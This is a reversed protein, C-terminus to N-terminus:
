PNGRAADPPIAGILHLMVEPARGGPNDRSAVLPWIEPIGVACFEDGGGNVTVAVSEAIGDCVAVAEREIETPAGSGSETAVVCSGSPSDAVGYLVVKCAFPPTPGNEHTIVLPMRGEPSLRSEEVPTMEPSGVATEVALKVTCTVSESVGACCFEAGSLRVIPEDVFSLKSRCPM